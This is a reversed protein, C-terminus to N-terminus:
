VSAKRRTTDARAPIPAAPPEEQPGYMAEFAAARMVSFQGDPGRVIWDEHRCQRIGDGTMVEIMGGPRHTRIAIRFPEPLMHMHGAWQHAEVTVPLATFRPM